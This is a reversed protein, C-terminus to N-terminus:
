FLIIGSSIGSSAIDLVSSLSRALFPLLMRKMTGGATSFNM